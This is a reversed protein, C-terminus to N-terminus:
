DHQIHSWLRRGAAFQQPSEAATEAANGQGVQEALLAQERIMGRQVSGGGIEVAAQVV